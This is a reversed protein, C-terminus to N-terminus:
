KKIVQVVVIAGIVLLAPLLVPSNLNTAINSFLDTMKQPATLMNEFTKGFSVAVNKVDKELFQKVDKEFFKKVKPDIVPKPLPKPPPIIKTLSVYKGNPKKIEGKQFFRLFPSM